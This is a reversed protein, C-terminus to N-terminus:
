YRRTYWYGGAVVAGAGLTLAIIWGWPTKKAALLHWADWVQRSDGGATIIAAILKDQTPVDYPRLWNVLRTVTLPPFVAMAEAIGKAVEAIQEDSLTEAGLTAMERVSLTGLDPASTSLTMM